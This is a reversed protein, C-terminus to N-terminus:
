RLYRIQLILTIIITEIKYNQRIILDMLIHLTRLITGPVTVAM